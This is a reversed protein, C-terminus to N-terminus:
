WTLIRFQKNINEFITPYDIPFLVFRNEREQSIEEKVLDQNTM